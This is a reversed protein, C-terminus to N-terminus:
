RPKSPKSPKRAKIGGKPKKTPKAKSPAYSQLEDIEDDDKSRSMVRNTAREMKNEEKQINTNRKIETQSSVNVRIQAYSARKASKTLLDLSQNINKRIYYLSFFISKEYFIIGFENRQKPPTSLTKRDYRNVLWNCILNKQYFVYAYTYIFSPSNSYVKFPFEYLNNGRDLDEKKYPFEIVVDYKVGKASHSPLEFHFVLTYGTNYLNYNIESEDLLFKDILIQKAEGIMMYSAGKGMPYNLYEHINM